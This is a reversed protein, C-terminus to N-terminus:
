RASGPRGAGRLKRVAELAKKEEADLQDILRRERLDFSRRPQGDSASRASGNHFCWGAAGGAMAGELDRLFDKAEPEWEGYARRFPEDYHLPAGHGAERLLAVSERAASETEAPSGKERGRHVSIFDLGVHEIYKKVEDRSPDGVHSATVLLRPALKRAHARLAKLDESPTYRADKINRENSLDLYWNRRDDLAAIITEVARRHAELTQLKSPGTGGNGRTLTVNVIMGRRDCEAVLARLKGLFPERPGGTQIDVASVDGGFAAWTAWVRIWNCGVARLDDLDKRLSEETAGLGGYYSMGLLFAPKGDITFRSGEIGLETAGLRAHALGLVIIAAAHLNRRPKM